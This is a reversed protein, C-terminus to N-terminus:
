VTDAEGESQSKSRPDYGADYESPQVGSLTLFYKYQVVLAYKNSERWGIHASIEPYYPKRNWLFDPYNPFVSLNWNKRHLSDWDFANIMGILSKLEGPLTEDDFKRYMNNGMHLVYNTGDYECLFRIRAGTLNIPAYPDGTFQKDYM